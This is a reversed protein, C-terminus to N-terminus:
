YLNHLAKFSPNTADATAKMQTSSPLGALVMRSPTNIFGAINMTFRLGWDAEYLHCQNWPAGTHM